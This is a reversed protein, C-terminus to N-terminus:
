LYTPWYSIELDYQYGSGTVTLHFKNDGPAISPFIGTFDVDSSDFQVTENECDIVLDKGVTFTTEVQIWDDNTENEFKIITITASDVHITIVPLANYTGTINIDENNLSTAKNSWASSSSASAKGFPECLFEIMFPVQTINWHEEPVNISRVTGVYTLTTDGYGIVLSRERPRLANKFNNILIRLNEKSTSILLGSVTIIKQSYRVDVIDFSDRISDAKLNIEKTPLGRHLIDRTLINATQLDYGNFTITTATM